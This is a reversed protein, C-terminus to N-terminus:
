EPPEGPCPPPFPPVAVQPAMNGTVTAILEEGVPTPHVFIENKIEVVANKALEQCALIIEGLTYKGNLASYLSQYSLGYGQKRTADFQPFAALIDRYIAPLNEVYEHTVPM